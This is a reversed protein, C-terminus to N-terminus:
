LKVKDLMLLTYILPLYVISAKLLRRAEFATRRRALQIGAFLFYAGLVAAGGLYWVGAMGLAVPAMSVLLLVVTFILVQRSTAPLDFVPLMVIGGRQYDERYMWAIAFFHPFQWLFLMACLVLGGSDLTGRAATWGMLIPLAGPFAGILTCLYTKRKLPTYLFL